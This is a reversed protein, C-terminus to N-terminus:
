LKIPSQALFPIEGFIGKVLAGLENVFHDAHTSCIIAVNNVKSM